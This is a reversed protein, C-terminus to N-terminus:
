AKYIDRRHGVDVVIVILENRHIEYIIRYSGVRYSFLGRFEGKLPKGASPDYGLEDLAKELRRYLEPEKHFIQGLTKEADRSFELKYNPM